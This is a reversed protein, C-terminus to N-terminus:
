KTPAPAKPPASAAAPDPQPQNGVTVGGFNCSGAAECTPAFTSGGGGSAGTAASEAKFAKLTEVISTNADKTSGDAAGKLSVFPLAILFIVSAILALGLFSVMSWAIIKGIVALVEWLGGKVAPAAGAAAAAAAGPAAAAPAAAAGPAAAAPHVGGVAVGATFAGAMVAIVTAPTFAGGGAAAVAAAAAAAAAAGPVAAAPAAVVDFDFAALAGPAADNEVEFDFHGIGGFGATSGFTLVTPTGAVVPGVVAADHDIVGPIPLTTCRLTYSDGTVALPLGAADNGDIVLEINFPTGIVPNAAGAPFRLTFAM